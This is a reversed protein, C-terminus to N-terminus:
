LLSLAAIPWCLHSASVALEETNTSLCSVDWQGQFGQIEGHNGFSFPYGPTAVTYGTHKRQAQWSKIHIVICVAPQITEVKSQPLARKTLPSASFPYRLCSPFDPEVKGSKEHRVQSPIKALGHKGTGDLWGRGPPDDKQPLLSSTGARSNDKQLTRSHSGVPM